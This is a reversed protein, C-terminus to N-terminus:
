QKDMRWVGAEILRLRAGHYTLDFDELTKTTLKYGDTVYQRTLAADRETLDVEAQQKMVKAAAISKVNDDVLSRLKRCEVVLKKITDADIETTENETETTEEGNETNGGRSRPLVTFSNLKDSWERCTVAAGTMASLALDITTDVEADIGRLKGLQQFLMMQYDELAVACTENEVKIKEVFTDFLVPFGM